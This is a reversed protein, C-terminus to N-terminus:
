LVLSIVLAFMAGASLLFIYALGLGAFKLLTMPWGQQYVRKQMLLLYLPMWWGIGFELWGTLGAFFGKGDPALWDGLLSLVSILALSLCLFAHSHLAVILHEMYLRRKFVYVIKLLLAFLPLLVFLTQPVASLFANKLLEPDKVGRKLNSSARGIAKNLGADVFAPLWAVDVPNTKADWPKGNFEFNGSDDSWNRDAAKGTRIEDIRREAAKQIQAKAVELGPAVGPVDGSDKIAKDLETVALARIKEVEAVTKAQAISDKTTGNGPGFNVGNGNGGVNVDLSWQALVFAIISMFVFLRVPSVYRVRHGSFYERSLFGPRAFLPGITRLIRSDINFVTDALDGLITSFERVLGKTPQGCAYCHEGLLERGCNDCTRPGPRPPAADPLTPADSM